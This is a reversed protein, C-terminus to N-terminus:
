KPQMAAFAVAARRAMEAPKVDEKHTAFAWVHGYPDAVQGYRDGWFMDAPPMLPKAGAAVARNYLADCDKVYVNMVTTTGGLSQPARVPSGPFEDALFFTTDGIKVEAHVISAGDPGLHRRGAKAGLARAYFALADAGGRVALHPTLTGLHAPVAQVKPKAQARTKKAKKRPKAKAM